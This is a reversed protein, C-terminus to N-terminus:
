SPIFRCGSEQNEMCIAPHYDAVPRTLGDKIPLASGLGMKIPLALGHGIKDPPGPHARNINGGLELWTKTRMVWNRLLHNQFSSSPRPTSWHLTCEIFWSCYRRTRFRSGIFEFGQKKKTEDEGWGGVEGRVTSVSKLIWFQQDLRVWASCLKAIKASSLIQLRCDGEHCFPSCKAVGLTWLFCKWSAFLGGKYMNRIQPGERVERPIRIMWLIYAFGSRTQSKSCSSVQLGRPPLPFSLM